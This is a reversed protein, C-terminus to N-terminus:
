APAPRPASRAAIRRNEPRGFVAPLRLLQRGRRRSFRWRLYWSTAWAKPLRRCRAVPWTWTPASTRGPAMCSFCDEALVKGTWSKPVYDPLCRASRDARFHVAAAADGDRAEVETCQALCQRDRRGVAGPAVVTARRIQTAMKAGDGAPGAWKGLRGPDRGLQDPRVCPEWVASIASMALSAPTCEEADGPGECAAARPRSSRACSHLQRALTVIDDIGRGAM